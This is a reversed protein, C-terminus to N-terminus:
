VMDRGYAKPLDAPVWAQLLEIFLGDGIGCNGVGSTVERPGIGEVHKSIRHITVDRPWTEDKPECDQGGPTPACVLYRVWGLKGWCPSGSFCYVFLVQQDSIIRPSLPPLCHGTNPSVQM